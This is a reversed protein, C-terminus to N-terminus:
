FVTPIIGRLKTETNPRKWFAKMKTSTKGRHSNKMASQRGIQIRARKGVRETERGRRKMKSWIEKLKKGREM